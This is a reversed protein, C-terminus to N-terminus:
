GGCGVHFVSAWFMPWLRSCPGLWLHEVDGEPLFHRWHRWRRRGLFPHTKVRMTVVIFLRGADGVLWSPTTLLGGCLYLWRRWWPAALVGCRLYVLCRRSRPASRPRREGKPRWPRPRRQGCGRWCRVAARWSCRAGGRGAGCRQARDRWATVAAGLLALGRLAM